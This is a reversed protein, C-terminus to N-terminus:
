PFTVAGITLTTGGRSELSLTNLGQTEEVSAEFEAFVPDSMGPKIATNQWIRVSKKSEGRANVLVASTLTWSGGGNNDIWVEVSVFSGGRCSRVGTQKLESPTAPHSPDSGQGCVVGKKTLLGMVYIARLGSSLDLATRAEGLELRLSANEADLRGKALLTQHLQEHLTGWDRRDRYVDVQHTAQHTQMVLTFIVLQPPGDTELEATLRVREGPLMDRPPMFSIATRGRIVQQFRTEDQLKVVSPTDFLFSTMLGPGICIEHDPTTPLSLEFRRRSECPAEPQRWADATGAPSANLLVVLLSPIM